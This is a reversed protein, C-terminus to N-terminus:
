EWEITAPPKSSLDYVVRNIGEVRNIIQHAVNELFSLPLQSCQATMGDRSSVARLAVVQEYTRKDGMVGVTRIPLLIVGAQWVKDYWGEKKLAEQFILDAEQLSSVRKPTIEGLIRIALGPGPFPHRKLLNKPIGLVKGIERVEDKFLDRIPEIVKLSLDKPLGGVNHHSKITQSSGQVSGSEIVDPYITGQGLWQIQSQKQAEKGFVEAFIKGIIKRKQEPDTVGKLNKYFIDKVSLCDVPIDAKRYNDLIENVENKRLLGTDVLFAHLQNGVALRILAAAVSSDVGGSLAMLVHTDAIRTRIHEIQERIFNAATWHAKYACINRAFNELWTKGQQTQSLEPHFQLGYLQKQPNGFVAFPSDHTKGWSKFNPPLNSIIDGHSMWVQTKKPISGTLQASESPYILELSAAGYERGQDGLLVEGGGKKVIYQAGYCIGLIPIRGIYPEIEINLEPDEGVSGPGGSLVIGLIRHHTNRFIDQSLTEPGYIRAYIERERFARAILQTYQSGCDVIAIEEM